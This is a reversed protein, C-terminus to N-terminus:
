FAEYWDKPTFGRAVCTAGIDFFAGSSRATAPEHYRLLVRGDRRIDADRATAALKAFSTEVSNLMELPSSAANFARCVATDTVTHRNVPPAPSASGSGCATLILFVGLAMPLVWWKRV